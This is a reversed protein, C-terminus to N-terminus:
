PDVRGGMREMSAEIASRPMALQGRSRVYKGVYNAYRVKSADVFLGRERDMVM